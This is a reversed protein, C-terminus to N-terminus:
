RTADGAATSDYDIAGHRARQENTWSGAMGGPCCHGAVVFVRDCRGEAGRSFRLLCSGRTLGALGGAADREPVDGRTWTGGNGREWTGAGDCECERGERGDQLPAPLESWASGSSGQARGRMRVWGM